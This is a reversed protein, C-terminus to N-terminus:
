APTLEEQRYLESSLRNDHDVLTKFVASAFDASDVNPWTVGTIVRRVRAGGSFVPIVTVVVVRWSIGHKSGAPSLDIWTTSGHLLDISELYTLCEMWGPGHSADQWKM